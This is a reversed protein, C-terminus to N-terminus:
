AAMGQPPQLASAEAINGVVDTTKQAAALATQAQIADATKKAMEADTYTLGPEHINSYRAVTDIVTQTNLREALNPSVRAIVDLWQLINGLKAQKAIAALGTLVEIKVSDGFKGMSPNKRQEMHVMRQVLPIHQCDQINAFMGGTASQLQAAIRNVQTATTREKSPTIESEILMAKALNGTKRIVTKDVVNFDAPNDVKLVAIDQVEAGSVRFGEIITGSDGKLDNRDIQCNQDPCWHFKSCMAAWELLRKELNNVSRLDGLNQEIFGRGYDEGAVLEYPTSMYPTVTEQSTNCLHGDVEQSIVWTQTWPQWEVRTYMDMLRECVPKGRLDSDKLKAKFRQTETMCDLPDVNERIIHYLVDGCSDRKTVYNDRRFVKIRYNDDMLQELTDGTIGLQTLSAHKRSFFSAPTRNHQGHGDLHASDLLSQLSVQFAFLDNLMAQKRVNAINPDFEIKPSLPFVFWPLGAPFTAAHMAGVFNTVGWAGISQWAEPLKSQSNQSRPPLVNPKTLAACLRARELSETRNGDDTIFQNAIEGTKQGTSGYEM